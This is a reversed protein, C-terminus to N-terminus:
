HSSLNNNNLKIEKFAPNKSCIIQDKFKLNIKSYRDWGSKKIGYSYFLYLNNMKESLDESSGILINHGGIRPILEIENNENVYVQEVQADWFENSRLFVAIENLQVLIPKSSSDNVFPVAYKLNREAYDDYIFGSAVVVQSTFKDTVPMFDGNDDIYFHENDRNIVRMVPNRQWVDINVYGDITSYVEAKNIFPITYVIKELLGINIDNMPSGKIKGGRSNLVNVIDAPEIFFNGTNDAIRIRLGKCKLVSQQHDSFGLIVILCVVAVSQLIIKIGRKNIWKM